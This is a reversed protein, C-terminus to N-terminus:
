GATLLQGYRALYHTWGDEGALSERESEWGPGHRDLHRHTLEVHTRDGDSPAFTIEVESCRLLDPELQWQPSVEWTFVLRHPAEVALVRGWQCLTGDIGRDYLRGDVWPELVSEAIDVALLNHHRPKIRDFHQTFVQFAREPPGDIDIELHLTEPPHQDTM